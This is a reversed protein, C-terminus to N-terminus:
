RVSLVLPVLNRGLRPGPAEGYLVARVPVPIRLHTPASTCGTVVIAVAVLVVPLRWLKM